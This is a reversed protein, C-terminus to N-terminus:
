ITCDTGSPRGTLAQEHTYGAGLFPLLALGTGRNHHGRQGPRPLLAGQSSAAELSFHWGGDKRQHVALWALGLEVASESAPTGGREGVLGLV